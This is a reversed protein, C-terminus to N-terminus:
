STEEGGSLNYNTKSSSLIVKLMEANIDLVIIKSRTKENGNLYTPSRKIKNL